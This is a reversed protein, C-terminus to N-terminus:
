IMSSTDVANMSFSENQLDTYEEATKTRSIQTKKQVARKSSGSGNSDKDSFNEHPKFTVIKKVFGTISQGITSSLNPTSNSGLSPTKISSNVGSGSSDLLNDGVKLQTSSRSSALTDAHGSNGSAQGDTQSCTSGTSNSPKDSANSQQVELPIEKMQLTMLDRSISWQKGLKSFIQHNETEILKDVMDGLYSTWFQKRLWHLLGGIIVWYILFCTYCDHDTKFIQDIETTALRQLYTAVKNQKMIALSNMVTVDSSFKHKLLVYKIYDTKGFARRLFEQNDLFPYKGSAAEDTLLEGAANLFDNYDVSRNNSTYRAIYAHYGMVTLIVAIGAIYIGIFFKMEFNLISFDLITNVKHILSESSDDLRIFNGGADRSPQFMNETKCCRVLSVEKPPQTEEKASLAASEEPIVSLSSPNNTKQNLEM